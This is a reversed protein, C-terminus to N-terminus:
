GNKDNEIEIFEGDQMEGGRNDPPREAIGKGMWNYLLNSWKQKCMSHIHNMSFQKPIYRTEQKTIISEHLQGQWVTNKKRMLRPQYEEGVNEGDFISIRWVYYADMNHIKNNAQCEICRCQRILSPLLRVFKPSYSEDADCFLIWESTAAFMADNRAQAFDNMWEINVVRAGASVALEATKDTSGTDAVIIEHLLQQDDLRYKQLHKITQTIIAEENYTLIIATIDM